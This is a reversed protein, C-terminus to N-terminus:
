GPPWLMPRGGLLHAHIHFVMQGGDSNCNMVIRYGAESVGCDHALQKAVQYLHGIISSHKPQLDNITAIHERPIILKHCPAQPDIDDFAIIQDDEYCIKAPIAKQSIQCFLCDM